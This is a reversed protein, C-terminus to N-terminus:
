RLSNYESPKNVSYHTTRKVKHVLWLTDYGSQNLEYHYGEILPNTEEKIPSYYMYIFLSSYGLLFVLVIKIFYKM